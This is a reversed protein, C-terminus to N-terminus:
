MCIWIQSVVSCTVFNERSANPSSRALSSCLFIQLPAHQVNAALDWSNLAMTWWIHIHYTRTLFDQNGNTLLKNRDSSIRASTAIHDYFWGSIPRKQAGRRRLPVGLEPCKWIRSVEQYTDYNASNRRTVESTPTRSVSGRCFKCIRSRSYFHSLWIFGNFIWLILSIQGVVALRRTNLTDVQLM